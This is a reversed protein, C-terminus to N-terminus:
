KKKSFCAKSDKKLSLEELAESIQESTRVASMSM